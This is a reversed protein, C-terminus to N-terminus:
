VKVSAYHLKSKFGRGGSRRPANCVTFTLREKKHTAKAPLEFWALSGAWVGQGPCGVLVGRVLCQMSSQVRTSAKRYVEERMVDM